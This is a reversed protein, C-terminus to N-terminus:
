PTGRPTTGAFLYQGSAIELAIGLDVQDRRLTLADLENSILQERTNYYSLVDVNGELLGQRSTDVLSRLSQVASDTAATQEKVSRINALISAIQARAEFLRAQYEDYLQKRTAREIAIIGQNRDFFPLSIGVTLGSTLINGTDRLQALGLAIKPFQAQIAARLTEEQSEYGAQLALLDLRRNQIGTMLQNIALITKPLPPSIKKQLPIKESPPLGLIGNLALRGQEQEKELTTLTTQARRLASEAAGLDIVTMDGLDTAQKVAEYNDSLGKEEQSVVLIQQEIFDLRYVFRKAAQAVQWEQWAIDLDVAKSLSRAAAVRSARTILPSFNWDATFGYGIVTGQTSGGSPVDLSYGFNPNPLVGAQLVQAAAIGRRDRLAVLTPNALVALVAAEDPALGDRLDIELPKLLPHQIREAQVRVEDLNPSRLAHTM